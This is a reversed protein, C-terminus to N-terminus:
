LVCLLFCSPVIHVQDTEPDQFSRPVKKSRLFWEDPWSHMLLSAEKQVQRLEDNSEVKTVISDYEHQLKLTESHQQDVNGQLVEDECNEVAVVCTLGLHEFM